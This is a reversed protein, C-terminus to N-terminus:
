VQQSWRQDPRPHAIWVGARKSVYQAFSAVFRMCLRHLVCAAPLAHTCVEEWPQTRVRQVAILAREDQLASM